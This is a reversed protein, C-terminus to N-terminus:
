IFAIGLLLVSLVLGSIRIIRKSKANLFVYDSCLMITSILAVTFLLVCVSNAGSLTIAGLVKSIATVVTMLLEFIYTFAGLAPSIMGLLVFVFMFMFAISAIPISLINAVISFLSLRDFKMMIPLTGIFVALTIALASAFRKHFVKSFGRELPKALLIIGLVAAFSLQFGVDYVDFPKFLLIIIAAFSLSSLGDYEKLRMKFFLLVITMIMARTVSTTFGCAFAYLLVIVSIVWFKVKDNAKFLRLFLALLAVVFGVHLGSVALLHATGGAQYTKVMDEGLGSKDGFMMTYGLESYDESLHTDLVSVFSSLSVSM